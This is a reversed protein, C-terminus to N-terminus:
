LVDCLVFRRLRCQLRAEICQRSGCVQIRISWPRPPTAGLRRCVTRM